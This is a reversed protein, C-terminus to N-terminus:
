LLRNFRNELNYWVSLANLLKTLAAGTYGKLPHRTTPMNAARLAASSDSLGDAEATAPCCEAGVSTEASLPWNPLRRAQAAFGDDTPWCLIMGSRDCSNWPVISMTPKEIV